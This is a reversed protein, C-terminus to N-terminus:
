FVSECRERASWGALHVPLARVPHVDLPVVAGHHPLEPVRVGLEGHDLGLLELVLQPLEQAGEPGHYDPAVVVDLHARARRGGGGGVEM